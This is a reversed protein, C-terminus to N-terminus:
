DEGYIEDLLERYEDEVAKRRINGKTQFSICDAVQDKLRAHLLPHSVATRPLSKNKVVIVFEPDTIQEHLYRREHFPRTRRIVERKLKESDMEVKPEIFLAPSPRGTGVVICEDVLDGCTARINEEIARTDCRLSNLSKIWDDDRGRSLYHGPLVQAFLDGTHFHGDVKRLSHDPCDASDALIVLELLQANASVHGSESKGTQAVSFFGYRVGGLPRLLRGNIGKGRQSMLM